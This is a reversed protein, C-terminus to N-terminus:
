FGESSSILRVRKANEDREELIWLEQPSLDTGGQYLFEFLVLAASSISFWPVAFCRDRREVVRQVQLTKGRIVRGWKKIVVTDKRTRYWRLVSGCRWVM